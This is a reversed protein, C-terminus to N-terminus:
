DPSRERYLTMVSVAVGVFALLEIAATTWFATMFSLGLSQLPPLMFLGVMGVSVSIILGALSRTNLSEPQLEDVTKDDADSRSM